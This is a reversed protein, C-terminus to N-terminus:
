IQPSDFTKKTPFDNKREKKTPQCKKKFIKPGNVSWYVQNFLYINCLIGSMQVCTQELRKLLIM